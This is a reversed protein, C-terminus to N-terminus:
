HRMTKVERLLSLESPSGCQPPSTCRSLRRSGGKFKTVNTWHDSYGPYVNLRHWHGQGGATCDFAVTGKTRLGPTSTSILVSYTFSLDDSYMRLWCCVHSFCLTVKPSRFLARGSFRCGEFWPKILAWTECSLLFQLYRVHPMWYTHCLLGEPFARLHPDEQPPYSLKTATWLEVNVTGHSYLSPCTIWSKLQPKLPGNTRCM